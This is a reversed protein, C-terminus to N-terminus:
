ARPRVIQVDNLERIVRGVSEVDPPPLLGPDRWLTYGAAQFSAPVREFGCVLVRLGRRGLLAAAVLGALDSGCVVVDFYSSDLAGRNYKARPPAPPKVTFVPLLFPGSSVPPVPDPHPDRVMPGRGARQRM